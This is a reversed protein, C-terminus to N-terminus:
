FKIHAQNIVEADTLKHYTSWHLVEENSKLIKATMAPVVDIAIGLFSGLFPNDDPYRVPEDRFMVWEYFIIECFQSIDSTEGSLVTEPTKGQLKYIDWTTNSQLYAEWKIADAWFPKPAGARVM